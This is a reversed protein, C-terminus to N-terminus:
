LDVSEIYVFADDLGEFLGVVYRNLVIYEGFASERGIRDCLYLMNTVQKRVPVRRLDCPGWAGLSYIASCVFSNSLQIDPIKSTKALFICKKHKMRTGAPLVHMSASTFALLVSATGQMSHRV